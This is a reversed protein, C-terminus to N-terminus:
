IVIMRVTLDLFSFESIHRTTCIVLCCIGNVDRMLAIYCPLHFLLHCSNGMRVELDELRAASENKRKLMIDSDAFLQLRLAMRLLLAKMKLVLSRGRGM